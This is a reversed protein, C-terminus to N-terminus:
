PSSHCLQVTAGCNLRSTSVSYPMTQIGGQERDGCATHVYWVALPALSKHLTRLCRHQATMSPILASRSTPCPRRCTPRGTSWTAARTSWGKATCDCSPRWWQRQSENFPGTLAAVPPLANSTSATSTSMQLLRNRAQACWERHTANGATYTSVACEMAVATSSMCHPTTLHCVAVRVASSSTWRSGSGRGTAPPAWGACSGRSSAATSPRGSGCGASSSRGAWPRATQARRRWCRRWWWSRSTLLLYPTNNWSQSTSLHAFPLLHRLVDCTLCIFCSKTM